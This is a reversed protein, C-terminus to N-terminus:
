PPVRIVPAKQPRTVEHLLDTSHGKYASRSVTDVWGSLGGVGGAAAFLSIVSVYNTAHYSTNFRTSHYLM